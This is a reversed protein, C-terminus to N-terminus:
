PESMDEKGAEGALTTGVDDLAVGGLRVQDLVLGRIVNAVGDADGAEARDNLDELLPTIQALYTDLIASASFGMWPHDCAARLRDWMARDLYVTVRERAPM